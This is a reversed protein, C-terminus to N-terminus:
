YKYGIEVGVQSSSYTFGPETSCNKSYQCVLALTGRKLFSRSLRASFTYYDNDPNASVANASAVYKTMNYGANLDLYYKRLLRQNLDCNVSTNETVQDQFYSPTV